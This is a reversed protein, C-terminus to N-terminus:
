VYRPTVKNLLGCVTCRLNARPIRYRKTFPVRVPVTTWNYWECNNGDRDRLGVTFECCNHYPDSGMANDLHTGTVVAYIDQEDPEHMDSRCDRTKTLLRELENKLSYCETAKSM